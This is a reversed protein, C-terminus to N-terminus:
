GASRNFVTPVLNLGRAQENFLAAYQGDRDLLEQHTGIESIRGQDLVVILDAHVASRLRHTIIFVTRGEMLREMAEHILSESEPDVASTAEDLIVIKSDKLFARAIALRQRQGGSVKVGREGIIADLGEPLDEVFSKLNAFELSQWLMEETADPRAYLLNDRVSASFLLADQAVLSISDRLSKLTFHRVDHGDILVRGHNVDYFRPILSALTTKGAGSRGVLAVRSGGPIHLNLEDLVQRLPAGDRPPYGFSVNDFQVTGHRVAFPHALPHDTIEPPLDLFGFIREIAALAASVVVSIQAFRELPLYVFALLTLFAILTGLTMTGRMIMLAAIWVVITPACRTLLQILMEQKAALRIKDVNREYLEGTRLGFRHVEQKERGFSKVTTAGVVREHVDGSLEEVAQQMRHCVAKIRPSFYRMFAVWMPMICLAVLALQWSLAFLIVIVLGLSIADTWVDILASTVLENAQTVDNLVRSVISGAPNRDFFSHPLQQLHSYLKAQLDFILRNGAIGAWYNRYYSAVSQIAYLMLMVISLAALKGEPTPAFRMLHAIGLCWHDITLDIGYLKPKTALLVDIIYKFALPFALPLTFKGIGMLAAGVVFRLHPKLCALFRALPSRIFKARKLDM